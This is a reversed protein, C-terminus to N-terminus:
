SGQVLVAKATDRRLKRIWLITRLQMTHATLGAAIQRQANDDISPSRHRLILPGFVDMRGVSVGRAGRCSKASCKTVPILPWCSAKPPSKFPWLHEYQLERDVATVSLRVSDTDASTSKTEYDLGFLNYVPPAPQSDFSPSADVPNSPDAICATCPLPPHPTPTRLVAEILKSAHSSPSPTPYCDM